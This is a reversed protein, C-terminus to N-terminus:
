GEKCKHSRVTVKPSFLAEIFTKVIEMFLILFFVVTLSDYTVTRLRVAVTTQPQRIPPTM